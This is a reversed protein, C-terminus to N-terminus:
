RSCIFIRRSNGLVSSARAGSADYDEGEAIQYPGPPPGELLLSPWHGAPPQGPRREIGSPESAFETCYDSLGCRRVVSRCIDVDNGSITSHHHALKGSDKNTDWSSEM